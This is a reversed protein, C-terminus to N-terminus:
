VKGSSFLPKRNLSHVTHRIDVILEQAESHNGQGFRDEGPDQYNVAM